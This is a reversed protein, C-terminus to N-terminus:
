PVPRTKLLARFRPGACDMVLLHVRRNNEFATTVLDRVYDGAGAVDSSMFREVSGCFATALARGNCGQAPDPPPDMGREIEGVIDVFYMFPQVDRFSKLTSEWIRRFDPSADRIWTCLLRKAESHPYHIEDSM